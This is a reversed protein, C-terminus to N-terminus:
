IFDVTSMTVKIRITLCDLDPSTQLLLLWLRSPAVAFIWLFFGIGHKLVYLAYNDLSYPNSSSNGYCNTNTEQWKVREPEGDGTVWRGDDNTHINNEVIFYICMYVVAMQRSTAIAFPSRCTLTVCVSLLRHCRQGIVIVIAADVAIGALISDNHIFVDFRHEMINNFVISIM